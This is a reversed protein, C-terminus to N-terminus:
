PGLACPNPMPKPASLRSVPAPGEEEERCCGFRVQPKQHAKRRTKVTRAAPASSPGAEMEEDSDSDPERGAGAAAAAAAGRM